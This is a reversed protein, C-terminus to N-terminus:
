DSDQKRPIRLRQGVKLHTPDDGIVGRNQAHIEPWRSAEGLLQEAIRYLSDGERVVYVGSESELAAPSKDPKESRGSLKAERVMSAPLPPISLRTGVTLKSPNEIQPNARALFSAYTQSGYHVEALIALTDGRAITYDGATESLSTTSRRAQSATSSPITRQGGLSGGASRTPDETGDGRDLTTGAAGDMSSAPELAALISDLRTGADDPTSRSSREGGRRRGRKGPRTQPTDGGGDVAAMLESSADDDVITIPEARLPSTIPGGRRPADADTTSLSGDPHTDVATGLALDDGEGGSTWAYWAVVGGLVVFLTLTIKAEKRM